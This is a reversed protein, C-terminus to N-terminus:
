DSKHTEITWFGDFISEVYLILTLFKINSIEQRINLVVHYDFVLRSITSKSLIKSMTRIFVHTEATRVHELREAVIFISELDFIFTLSAEYVPNIVYIDLRFQAKVFCKIKYELTHICNITNIAQWLWLRGKPDPRVVWM